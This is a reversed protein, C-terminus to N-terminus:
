GGHRDGVWLKSAIVAYTVMAVAFLFSFWGPGDTAFVILALAIAATWIIVYM